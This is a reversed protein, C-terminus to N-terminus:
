TITVRPCLAKHVNIANTAIAKCAAGAVQTNSIAAVTIVTLVAAIVLLVIVVIGIMCAWLNQLIIALFFTTLISAIVLGFPTLLVTRWFLSCVSVSIPKRYRHYGLLRDWLYAWRYLVSRVGTSPINLERDLTM